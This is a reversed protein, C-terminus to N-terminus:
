RHRQRYEAYGNQLIQMNGNFREVAKEADNKDIYVNYGIYKEAIEISSIEKLIIFDFGCALLSNNCKVKSVPNSTFSISTFSSLFIFVCM